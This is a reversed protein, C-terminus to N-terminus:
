VAQCFLRQGKREVFHCASKGEVMVVLQFVGGSIVAGFQDIVGVQAHAKIEGVLAAMMKRHWLGVANKHEWAVNKVARVDTKGFSHGRGFGRRRRNGFFLKESLTLRCVVMARFIKLLLPLLKKAVRLFIGMKVIQVVNQVRQVVSYYLMEYMQMALLIM